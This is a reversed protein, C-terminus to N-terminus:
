QSMRHAAVLEKDATLLVRSLHIKFYYFEPTTSSLVAYSQLIQRYNFLIQGEITYKFAYYTHLIEILFKWGNPLLQRFDYPHYNKKVWVTYTNYYFFFCVLLNRYYYDAIGKLINTCNVAKPQMWIPVQWIMKDLLCVEFLKSLSNSIAIKRYNDASSLNSYM